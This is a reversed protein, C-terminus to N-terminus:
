KTINYNYKQFRNKEKKLDNWNFDYKEEETWDNPFHIKLYDGLGFEGDYYSDTNLSLLAQGPVFNETYFQSSLLVFLGAFSDLLNEFNALSFAEYRNHKCKNYANYWSLSDTTKWDKFPQFRQEKGNWIPYEVSYSDLHHTKNIRKYDKINWLSENRYENKKKGSKFIPTYDNERLIAKFNAEVEICIRMFLDYVRYSYTKLNIDAPEIFEFLKLLDKQILLFARTYHEPAVSYEHDVVYAWGSYGSQPSAVIERYNRHYPKNISM